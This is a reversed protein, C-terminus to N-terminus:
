EAGGGFLMLMMDDSQRQLAEQAAQLAEIRQLVTLPEEEPVEPTPQQEGPPRFTKGDYTWGIAVAPTKEAELLSFGPLKFGPDALIVNVVLGDKVVAYRM